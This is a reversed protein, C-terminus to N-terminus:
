VEEDAHEYWSAVTALMSLMEPVEEKQGLAVSGNKAQQQAAANLSAFMSGRELAWFGLSDLQVQKPKLATYHKMALEPAGSLRYLRILLVRLQYRYKSHRIAYELMAIALELYKAESSCSATWAGLYCQAALLAFDDAPQLDTPLNDKGFHLASFYAKACRHGQTAEEEATGFKQQLNRRVCEATISAQM